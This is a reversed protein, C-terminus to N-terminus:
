HLHRTFNYNNGCKHGVNTVKVLKDNVIKLIDGQRNGTYLIGDKVALGEPADIEGEFLREAGNLIKNPALSGTLPM